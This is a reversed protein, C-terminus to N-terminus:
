FPLLCYRVKDGCSLRLILGIVFSFVSGYTNALEWWLVLTLQPFVIVFMFDGCLVFLDYISSYTIALSTEIICKVIICVWLARIVEKESCNPRIVKQYINRAVM